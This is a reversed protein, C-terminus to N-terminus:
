FLIDTFKKEMVKSFNNAWFLVDLEMSKVNAYLSELSAMGIGLNLGERDPISTAVLVGGFVASFAVLWIVSEM